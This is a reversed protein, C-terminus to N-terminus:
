AYQEPFLHREIGEIMLHLLTMHMEQIRESQYSPIICELTACGKLKGGDKGLFSLISMGMEKATEVAKILNTSQGSTSLIVLIDRPRGHAEVYRSFIYDFGFDNGVCTIHAPDSIAIAPLARRNKRFRGTFEEAAHMADCCSGGNGCFFLRNNSTIAEACLTVMKQLVTKVHPDALVQRPLASAEEFSQSLFGSM